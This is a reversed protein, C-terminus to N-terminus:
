CIAAIPQFNIWINDFPDPQRGDEIIWAHMSTSPLSVGIFMVGSEKFKKSLRAAFLSRSLCLDNQIEGKKYNRFFIISQAADEFRPKFCVSQWIGLYFNIKVMKILFELYVKLLKEKFLSKNQVSVYENKILSYPNNCYSLALIIKDTLRIARKKKQKEFELVLGLYPDFKYVKDEFELPLSIFKM